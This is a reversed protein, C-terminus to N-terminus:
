QGSAAAVVPFGSEEEGVKISTLSATANPAAFDPPRRGPSRIGSPNQGGKIHWFPMMAFLVMCWVFAVMIWFREQKGAPKWWVGQPAVVASHWEM